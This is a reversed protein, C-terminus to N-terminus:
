TDDGDGDEDDEDDNEACAEGKYSCDVCGEQFVGEIRIRGSAGACDGTSALSDITELGGVFGDPSVSFASTDTLVLTGKCFKRPQLNNVGTVAAVDPTTTPDLTSYITLTSAIFKFRGKLDGSFRGETCLGLPSPCPEGNSFIMVQESVIRGRVQECEALASGTPFLVAIGIILGTTTNKKRTM